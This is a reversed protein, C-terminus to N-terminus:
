LEYYEHNTVIEHAAWSPDIFPKIKNFIIDTCFFQKIRLIRNDVGASKNAESLLTLETATLNNKLVEKLNINNM